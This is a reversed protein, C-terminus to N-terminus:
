QQTCQCVTDGLTHLDNVVIRLKDEMYSAQKQTYPIKPAIKMHYLYIPKHAKEFAVQVAEVKDESDDFYYVNKHPHTALYELLADGKNGGKTYIINHLLMNNGSMKLSDTGIFGFGNKRLELETSSSIVPSYARSTLAITQHGHKKLSALAEPQGDFVPKTDYVTYFMPTLVNYLCDPSIGQTLSPRSSLQSFWWDSGFLNDNTIMLTNDIDFVYLADKVDAIKGLICDFEEATAV